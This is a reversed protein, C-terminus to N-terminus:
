MKKPTAFPGITKRVQLSLEKILDAEKGAQIDFEPKLTVFAYVAQGTVEDNAGVATPCVWELHNDAKGKSSQDIGM